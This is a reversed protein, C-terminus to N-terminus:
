TPDGSLRTMYVTGRQKINRIKVLKKFFPFRTNKQVETKTQNVVSRKLSWLSQAKLKGM